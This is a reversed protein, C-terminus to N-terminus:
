RNLGEGLLKIPNGPHVRPQARHDGNLAISDLRHPLLKQDTSDNAADHEATAVVAQSCRAFDILPVTSAISITAVTPALAACLAPATTERITGMM